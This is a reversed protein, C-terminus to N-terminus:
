HITSLYYAENTMSARFASLSEASSDVRWDSEKNVNFWIYLKIKPYSNKIMNFADTIWAPKNTPDGNGRATEGILIPKDSFITSILASYIGTFVATSDAGSESYGDFGVWDVYQDGPYYNEVNNWSDTPDSSNMPCWVWTVNAAGVAEFTAHIRRWAAIYEVGSNGHNCGAWPYWNGNMEHGWRIFMPKGWSKAASAFTTIYSDCDGSIIHDLSYTAETTDWKRPEWTLMPICGHDHVSDCASTPFACTFDLFWMVVAAERSILNEYSTISEASPYGDHLFVGIGCGSYDGKIKLSSTGEETSTPALQCSALFLLSIIIFVLYFRRKM